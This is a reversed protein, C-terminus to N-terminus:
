TVYTYLKGLTTKSRNCRTDTKINNTARGPNFNSEYTSECLVKIHWKSTSDDISKLHFNELDANSITCTTQSNPYTDKAEKMM